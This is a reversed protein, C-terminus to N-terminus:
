EMIWNAGDSMFRYTNYRVGTVIAGSAQGDITQSSTTNFTLNNGATRLSVVIEQGDIGVATPLTCVVAGGATSVGYANQASASFNATKSSYTFSIPSPPSPSSLFAFAGASVGLYSGDAGITSLGTGGSAVPLATTLALSGAELNKNTTDGADRISLTNADKRKLMMDQASSTGAGFKITGDSFISLRYNTDGTVGASFCRNAASRLIPLEQTLNLKTLAINAATKINSDDLNGNIVTSGANFNANVKSSNITTGPSFSYPITLADAYAPLAVMWLCLLLSLLRHM